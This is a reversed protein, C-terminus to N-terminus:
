TGNTKVSISKRFDIEPFYPMQNNQLIRDFQFHKWNSRFILWFRSFNIETTIKVEFRKRGERVRVLRECVCQRQWAKVAGVWVGLWLSGGVGVCWSGLEVCGLKSGSRDAWSEVCGLESGSRDAWSGLEVCEVFIVGIWERDVGLVRRFDSRDVGIRERDLSRNLRREHHTKKKRKESRDWKEGIWGWKEPGSNKWKQGVVGNRRDVFWWKLEWKSGSHHKNM